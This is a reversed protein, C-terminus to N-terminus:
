NGGEREIVAQRVKEKTMYEPDTNRERKTKPQEKRNHHSLINMRWPMINKEKKRALM